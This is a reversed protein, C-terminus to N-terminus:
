IMTRTKVQGSRGGGGQGENTQEPESRFDNTRRQPKGRDGVGQEMKQGYREKSQRARCAMDRTVPVPHPLADDFIALEREKKGRM